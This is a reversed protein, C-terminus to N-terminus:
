WNVIILRKSPRTVATYKIRNREEVRKLSNIDSELVVANVFTSGQSRHVTLAYNYGIDAFHKKFKYFEKWGQMAEFGGKPRSKALEALLELIEKYLYESDEHIVKLKKYDKRGNDDLSAVEVVYYKLKYQGGNIEEEEIEFSEVEFEANTSFIIKEGDEEFIPTQAFLKEGVEIKNAKDGYIMGRITKNMFAVTKNRYCLVKGYDANAKFGEGLFMFELVKDFADAEAPNSSNLFIVGSGDESVVNERKIPLVNKSLNERICMSLEIIPNGKAQRVVETLFATQMNLKKQWEEKFPICELHGVPPIQAPDGIFLIKLGKRVYPDLLNFLEDSLMSVEDITMMDTFDISTEKGYDKKFIQKGDRDIDEKLGLASHVTSYSLNSHFYDAADYMVRVAKNTPATMLVTKTRQTALLKEIVKTLVYTKGTGAYGMFLFMGGKPQALFVLM